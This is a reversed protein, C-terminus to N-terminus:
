NFGGHLIWGADNKARGAIARDYMAVSQAQANLNKVAVKSEAYLRELHPPFPAPTRYLSWIERSLALKLFREYGQPLNIPTNLSAYDSFLIYIHNLVDL